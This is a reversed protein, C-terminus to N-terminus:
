TTNFEGDTMLVLVKLLNGTDYAAPRSEPPWLYGFNPSIMYWSWALGIQGATSGGATLSSAAASLATKNSSLPFINPTLCPNKSSPYNLGLYTVSPAADTWANTTRDTTCTSVQFTNWNGQPSQFYYYQCGYTTCFLSGGSSYTGYSPGKTDLLAFSNASTNAVNFISNNLQTMGGVGTIYVVDGNSFGHASSTIVIECASTQCKKVTGGSSYTSYSSSDVGNLTFQTTSTVTITYSKNNLQTMGNVGTIYVTDGTIYGHASSTTIKAPKAKTAGSIGKSSGTVAWAAGAITKAAAIPGRVSAAYGGVNVGMSYPILAMKSYTPTQVDQVVIGILEKTAARLDIIKQGSMSGTTDLALAVEVDVSGRTAEAMLRATLSPFGILAVFATPIKLRAELHLTGEAADIAVTDIQACPPIAQDTCISWGETGSSLQQVLLNQAKTKIIAAADADYIGPQLGLAAADLAVQARTRAQEISTYDVVAGSTAVLVIAMVGFLVLFAGREDSRFRALLRLIRHM